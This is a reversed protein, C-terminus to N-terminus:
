LLCSPKLVYRMHKMRTSDHMALQLRTPTGQNNTDKVSNSVDQFGSGGGTNRYARANLNLSSQRRGCFGECICEFGTEESLRWIPQIAPSSVHETPKLWRGGATCLNCCLSLCSEM